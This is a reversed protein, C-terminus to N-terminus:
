AAPCAGVASHVFGFTLVHGGACRAAAAQGTRGNQFIAAQAALAAEPPAAPGLTADCHALPQPARREILSQADSHLSM